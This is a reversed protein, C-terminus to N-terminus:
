WIAQSVSLVVPWFGHCLRLPHGSMGDLTGQMGDGDKELRKLIPGLASSVLAKM